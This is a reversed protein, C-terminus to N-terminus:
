GGKNGATPGAFPSQREALRMRCCLVTTVFMTRPWGGLRLVGNLARASADAISPALASSTRM